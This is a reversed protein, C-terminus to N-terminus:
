DPGYRHAHELCFPLIDDKLTTAAVVCRCVQMVGQQLGDWAAGRITAASNNREYIYRETCMQAALLVCYVGGQRCKCGVTQLWQATNQYGIEARFEASRGSAQERQSAPSRRM